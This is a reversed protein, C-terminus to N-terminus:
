IDDYERLLRDTKIFIEKLLIRRNWINNKVSRSRIDKLNEIYKDATNRLSINESRYFDREGKLMANQVEAFKLTRVRRAYDDREETLKAIKNANAISKAELDSKVKSVIEDYTEKYLAAKAEDLGVFKVSSVSIEEIDRLLYSAIRKIDAGEHYIMSSITYTSATTAIEQTKIEEVHLIKNPHNKIAKVLEENNRTAKQELDAVKSTLKPIEEEAKKKAELLEHYTKLSIKVSEEM